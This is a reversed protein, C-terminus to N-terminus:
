NTAKDRIKRWKAVNRNHERLTRSFVHGGTGDAVFYLADTEAPHLVAKLADIGPNCIPTPPLGKIRYTNYDTESRLDARSLSRGLPEGFTLGYVVTPDSQLRMGKRLRNVFVGAVLAREEAVGTEKEVISALIVADEPTALPLGPERKAWLDALTTDMNRRMRQVLDSRDDGWSYHYTEPLLDGDNASITVGGTLGDAQNVLAIFEASTLGEALTVKRVVTEGSTLVDIVGRISVGAPFAYEGARLATDDGDIRSRLRFLWPNQVIGHRSLLGAITAVGNGPKIIVVTDVALPGPVHTAKDFWFAGGVTSVALLAILTLVRIM